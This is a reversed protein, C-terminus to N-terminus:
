GDCRVLDEVGLLVGVDDGARYRIRVLGSAAPEGITEVPTGAPLTKTANPGGLLGAHHLTIPRALTADPHLELADGYADSPGPRASTSRFGRHNRQPM